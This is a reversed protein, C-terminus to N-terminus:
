WLSLEVGLRSRKFFLSSSGPFMHMEVINSSDLPMHMEGRKRQPDLESFLGSLAPLGEELQVLMAIVYMTDMATASTWLSVSKTAM